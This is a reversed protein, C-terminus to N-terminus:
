VTIDQADDLTGVRLMRNSIYTGDEDAGDWCEGKLHTAAGMEATLEKYKPRARAKTLIDEIQDPDKIM